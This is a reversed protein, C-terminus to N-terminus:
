QTVKRMPENTNLRSFFYEFLIKLLFKREKKQQRLIKVSQFLIHRLIKGGALTFVKDIEGEEEPSFITNNSM